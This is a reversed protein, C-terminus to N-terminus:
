DIEESQMELGYMIKYCWEADSFQAVSNHPNEMLEGVSRMLFAKLYRNPLQWGWLSLYFNELFKLKQKSAWINVVLLLYSTLQKGQLSLSVKSVFIQWIVLDSYDYNTQWGRKWSLITEWSFLLKHLKCSLWTLAAESVVMGPCCCFGKIRLGLEHCLINLHVSLIM